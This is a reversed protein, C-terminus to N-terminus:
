KAFTHSGIVKTTTRTFLWKSTTTNANYFFIAGNTPDSGNYADQAAKQVTSDKEFAKDFQGDTVSTFQGKQYIVGEITNPFEPSKVRNMIVAGVAVQGLYSEGRAEANIVRALLMVENSDGEPNEGEKSTSSKDSPNDTSTSSSDVKTAFVSLSPIFSDLNSYSIILLLLLFTVISIFSISKKM